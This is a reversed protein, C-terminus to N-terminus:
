TTRLYETQRFALWQACLSDMESGLMKVGAPNQKNYIQFLRNEIPNTVTFGEAEGTLESVAQEGHPNTVFLKNAKM